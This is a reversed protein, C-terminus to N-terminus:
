TMIISDYVIPIDSNGFTSVCDFDGKQECRDIPDLLYCAKIYSLIQEDMFSQNM